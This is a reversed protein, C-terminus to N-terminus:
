DENTKVIANKMDNQENRSLISTIDYSFDYIALFATIETSTTYRAIECARELALQSDQQPEIIVLIKSYKRM